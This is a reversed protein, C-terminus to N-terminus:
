SVSHNALKNVLSTTTALIVSILPLLKLFMLLLLPLQFVTTPLNLLSLVTHYYHISTISLDVLTTAITPVETTVFTNTSASSAGSNVSHAYNHPSFLHYCWYQMTPVDTTPFIDTAAAASLNTVSNIM